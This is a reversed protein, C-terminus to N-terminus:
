ALFLLFYYASPVLKLQMIANAISVRLRGHRVLVVLWLHSRWHDLNCCVQTLNSAFAQKVTLVTETNATGAPIKVHWDGCTVENHVVSWPEQHQASLHHIQHWTSTLVDSLQACLYPCYVNIIGGGWISPPMRFQAATDTCSTSFTKHWNSLTACTLVKNQHQLFTSM